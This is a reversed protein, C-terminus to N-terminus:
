DIGFINKINRPINNMVKESLKVSCKKIYDTIEKPISSDAKVDNSVYGKQRIFDEKQSIVGKNDEVVMGFCPTELRELTESTESTKKNWLYDSLLMGTLGESEGRTVKEKGVFFPNELSAISEQTKEIIRYLTNKM